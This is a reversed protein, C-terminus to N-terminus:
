RCIDVWKVKGPNWPTHSNSMGAVAWHVQNFPILVLAYLIVTVAIWALDQKRTWVEALEHM